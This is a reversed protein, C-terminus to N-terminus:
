KNITESNQVSSEIRSIMAVRVALILLLGNELIKPWGVQQSNAGFCGCSIDLGRLMAIAIMVVFIAMLAAYLWAAAERWPSIWLAAAIVLELMILWLALINLSTEPLLRYYSIDRVFLQPDIIKSIASAFFVASLLALMGIFTWRQLNSQRM